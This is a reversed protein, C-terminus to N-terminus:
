KNRKVMKEALLMMPGKREDPIDIEEIAKMAEKYYHTIVREAEERAGSREYLASIGSIKEQASGAGLGLLSYMEKLDEEFGRKRLRNLSEILLWTKKNNLIDGGIAKGFVKPDGYVDLMDDQLQFALGLSLGM